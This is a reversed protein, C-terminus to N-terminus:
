DDRKTDEPRSGINIAIVQASPPPQNNYTMPEPRLIFGRHGFDLCYINNVVYAPARESM